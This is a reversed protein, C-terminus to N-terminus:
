TSPKTSQKEHARAQNILRDAQKHTLGWAKTAYAILDSRVAGDKMRAHIAAARESIRSQEPCQLGAVALRLVAEGLGCHWEDACAAFTALQQEDPRVAVVHRSSISGAVPARAM